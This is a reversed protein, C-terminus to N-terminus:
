AYRAMRKPETASSNLQIFIHSPAATVIPRMTRAEVNGNLALVRERGM